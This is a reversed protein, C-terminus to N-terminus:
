ICSVISKSLDSKLSKLKTYFTKLIRSIGNIKDSDVPFETGLVIVVQLCNGIPLIMIHYDTPTRYMM